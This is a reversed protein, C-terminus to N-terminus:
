LGAEAGDGVGGGAVDIIVLPLYFLSSFNLSPSRSVQDVLKSKSQEQKISISVMKLESADM